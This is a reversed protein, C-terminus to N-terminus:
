LTSNIERSAILKFNSESLKLYSILDFIHEKDEDIYWYFNWKVNPLLKNIKLFYPQDINCSHGFVIIEEIENSFKILFDSIKKTDYSKQFEGPMSNIIRISDAIAGHDYEYPERLLKISEENIENEPYGIILKNGEQYKGHIYLIKEREIKYVNELTSTYNFTIFIIVNKEFESQFFKIPKTTKIKEEAEYLFANLTKKLIDVVKYSEYIMDSYYREHHDEDYTLSNLVNERIEELDFDCESLSKEFNNWSDKDNINCCNQFFDLTGERRAASYFNPHYKTPLEHKLDFGNGLIFLKM